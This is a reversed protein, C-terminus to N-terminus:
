KLVAHYAEALSQGGKVLKAELLEHDLFTREAQALPRGAANASRISDLMAKNPAFELADPISALHREATWLDRAAAGGRAGWRLKIATGGLKTLWGVKFFPVPAIML